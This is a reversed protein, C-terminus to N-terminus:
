TVSFLGTGGSTTPIITSSSGSSSSSTAGSVTINGIVTLNGKIYTNGVVDLSNSPNSNNIGM